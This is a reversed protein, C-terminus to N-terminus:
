EDEDSGDRMMQRKTPLRSVGALQDLSVDYRWSSGEIYNQFQREENCLGCVGRSTPGAPSDIVWQHSCTPVEPLDTGVSTDEASTLKPLEQIVGM